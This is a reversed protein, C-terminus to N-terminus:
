KCRQASFIPSFRVGRCNKWVGVPHIIEGSSYSDRNPRERDLLQELEFKGFLGLVQAHDNGFHPAKRAVQDAHASVAEIDSREARKKIRETFAFLNEIEEFLSAPRPKSVAIEGDAAGRM